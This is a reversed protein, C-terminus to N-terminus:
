PKDQAPLHAAAALLQLYNSRATFVTHDRSRQNQQYETLAQLVDLNTVLGLQYDRVQAQYSKKATETARTLARLQSLNAEVSQYFSRIEQDAQRLVQSQSLEAQNRQAGAQRVKSQVSGGAYLPITLQLQVDWKSNDLYGPRELYYNANLDLSPYHEGRAIAIGEAAAVLRQQAAHVDPRSQIDALYTPLPQLSDPLRHSDHLATRADLGSLFAFAQRAVRLQGRLQEVTARLTSISSQENLLESDRSRGIKVRARIDKEREQNLRIEERYNRLDSELALIAYFNQIVDKYLALKAQRYDQRQAALLDKTQRLAAYERMGRFLPQTATIRSVHQQSLNSPNTSTGAPLPDQWTYTVDGSITPLLAANAQRYVEEAQQIQQLQIATTESRQLAANFYADLDLSEAAQALSCTALCIVSILPLVRLPFAFLTM